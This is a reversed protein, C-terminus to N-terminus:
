TKQWNIKNGLGLNNDTMKVSIIELFWLYLPMNKAFPFKNLYIETYKELDKQILHVVASLQVGQIKKYDINDKSITVSVHPNYLFHNAHNTKPDSSFILFHQTRDYVYYCNCAHPINEKSTALSLLHNNSLFDVIRDDM